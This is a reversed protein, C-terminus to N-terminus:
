LRTNVASLVHGSRRAQVSPSRAKTQCGRGVGISGAVQNTATDIVSVTGSGTNVVYVEDKTPSATVGTPNDGTSLTRTVKMTALDLVSVSNSGSNTVYAFTHAPESKNKSCGALVAMAGLVLGAVQRGTVAKGSFKM